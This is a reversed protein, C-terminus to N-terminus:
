RSCWEKHHRINPGPPSMPRIPPQKPRSICVEHRAHRHHRETVVVCGGLSIAMIMLLITLILTKM